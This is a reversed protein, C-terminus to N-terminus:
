VGDTNGSKRTNKDVIAALNMQSKKNRSGPANQCKVLGPLAYLFKQDKLAAKSFSVKTKAPITDAM